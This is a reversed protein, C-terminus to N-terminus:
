CHILYVAKHFKICLTFWGHQNTSYLIYILKFVQPLDKKPPPKFKRVPAKGSVTKKRCHSQLILLMGFM